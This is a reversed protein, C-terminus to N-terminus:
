AAHEIPVSIWGLRYMTEVSSTTGTRRHARALMNRVHSVSFRMCDAARQQDGHIAYEALVRTEIPTLAVVERPHRVLDVATAARM